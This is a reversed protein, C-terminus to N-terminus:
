FKLYSDKCENICFVRLKEFTMIEKVTKLYDALTFTKHIFFFFIGSENALNLLDICSVTTDPILVPLTLDGWLEKEELHNM